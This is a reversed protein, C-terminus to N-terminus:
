LRLSIGLSLKWMTKKSGDVWFKKVLGWEDGKPFGGGKGLENNFRTEAGVPEQGQLLGQHM